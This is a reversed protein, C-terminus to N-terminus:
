FRRGGGIVLRNVNTSGGPTFIATLRYGADGYWHGYPVLVGIGASFAGHGTGGSLDRGLTLGFQSGSGINTGNLNFTTKPSTRAGGVGLMVYPRYRRRSELVWRANVTGYAAPVKVVASAPQGQTQQLFTVLQSAAGGSRTTTVNSFYGAELSVDLQRWVRMGGEFNVPVGVKSTSTVGTALGAYWVVVTPSPGPHLAQTTTSPTTTQASASTAFGLAAAALLVVYLRKIL